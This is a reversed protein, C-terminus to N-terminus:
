NSTAAWVRSGTAVFTWPTGEPTCWVAVQADGDQEACELWGGAVEDPALLGAEVAVAEFARAAAEQVEPPADQAAVLLAVVCGLQVAHGTTPTDRTTPM